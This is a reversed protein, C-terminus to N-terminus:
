KYAEKFCAIAGILNADNRFKCQIVEAKPVSYACSQYLKDLNKVIYDIFIPQASIGGGIAFKEVDLITELNFIQIAIELTYKNLAEIADKDGSNVAEFVDKGSINNADIKKAEAYSRCLTLVSCRNGWVNQTEIKDSVINNIYSVEGASNHIGRHIKKDKIFAGGIMTGFLLIFSDNVDKLCGYSVEAMAACKADNEIYIDTPCRKYLAEKIHFDNNFKIAGGMICHGKATDIIGPMSIAIGEIDKFEDYIKGIAEVFDERNTNPTKISGTKIFEIKDNCLAYKIFSGGIDLALLSM